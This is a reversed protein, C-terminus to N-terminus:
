RKKSYRALMVARQEPTVNPASGRAFPRNVLAQSTLSGPASSDYRVSSVRVTRAPLPPSEESIEGGSHEKLPDYNIMDAETASQNIIRSDPTAVPRSLARERQGRVYTLIEEQNMELRHMTDLIATMQRTLAASSAVSEQHRTSAVSQLSGLSSSIADVRASTAKVTKEQQVVKEFLASLAGDALGLGRNDNSRSARHSSTSSSVSSPATRPLTMKRRPSSYARQTEVEQSAAELGRTASLRLSELGADSVDPNSGIGELEEEDLIESTKGSAPSYDHYTESM